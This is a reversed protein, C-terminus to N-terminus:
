SINQLDCMYPRLVKPIIVSGDAQQYNELIAAFTRGVAVGSGNLTHVFEPKSKTDARFRINARRAQFDTFCSCSSIERFKGEGPFWVELDYTKAAAFGIDGTCLEVVRYHLGLKQLIKEADATLKELEDFSTSPEVFRVLEVKDFQHQRILGRVDKGYSGAESRFCATYSAYKIPLQEKTLIEDRHYNTVPVEATPILYNDGPSCKFLDEEFKPLQGTGTLSAANVMFPPYIEKYGNEDIHVDLMFSILARALRAGLGLYVVHRSGSIKAAREFDLIGLDKGIEWHNKPKFTIQPISGWKRIEKNDEASKGIKVSDHPINPLYFLPTRLKEEAIKAKESLEKGKASLDKSKELIATADKKERKLKGVEEALKNQESKVQELEFTVKRWEEDDRLFNDVLTIDSGRDKLAKKIKEPESRILKPDLM